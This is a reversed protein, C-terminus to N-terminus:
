NRLRISTEATRTVTTGNSAVGAVSVRLTILNGDQVFHFGAEDSLGNGNDDNGNMLEGDFLRTVDNCVVVRVQGDEGIRKWLAIVGEDVLGDGDDDLGNFPDRPDPEWAIHTVSGPALEGDILGAASLYTLSPSAPAWATFNTFLNMVVARQLEQAIREVGRRAKSEAEIQQNSSKLASNGTNQIMIAMAAMVSALSLSILLELLTFGARSRKASSQTRM